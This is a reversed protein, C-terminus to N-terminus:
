YFIPPGVLFSISLTFNLYYSILESVEDGTGSFYSLNMHLVKLILSSLHMNKFDVTCKCFGCYIIM